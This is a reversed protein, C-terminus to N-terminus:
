QAFLSKLFSPLLRGPFRPPLFESKEQEKSLVNRHVKVIQDLHVGLSILKHIMLPGNISSSVEPSYFTLKQMVDPM